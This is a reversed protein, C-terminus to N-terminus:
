ASRAIRGGGLAGRRLTVPIVRGRPLRRIARTYQHMLLGILVAAGLLVWPVIEAGVQSILKSKTLPRLINWAAMALFSYAFMLLAVGREGRHLTVIPPLLRAVWANM